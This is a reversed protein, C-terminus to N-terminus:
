MVDLWSRYPTFCVQVAISFLLWFALEFFSVVLPATFLLSSVGRAVLLQTQSVVMFALPMLYYNFRDGMVSSVFVIPLILLMLISMVDM